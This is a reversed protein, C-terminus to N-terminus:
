RARVFPRPAVVVNAAGRKIAERHFGYGCAGAEYCSYVQMGAKGWAEGQALLKAPEWQPPRNPRRVM